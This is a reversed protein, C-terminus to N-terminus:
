KRLNWYRERKRKAEKQKRVRASCAPCYKAFNSTSFIPKGCVQCSKGSRTQKLENELETDAPLVAARFYKCILTYSLMQPCLCREYGTDLPLCYGKDKNEVNACLKMILKKARRLQKETMHPLEAM